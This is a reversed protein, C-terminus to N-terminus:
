GVSEHRHSGGRTSHREDEHEAQEHAGTAALFLLALACRRLRDPETPVLEVAHSADTELELDPGEPDGLVAPGDVGRHGVARADGLRIVRGCTRLPVLNPRNMRRLSLRSSHFSRMAAWRSVGSSRAVRKEGDSGGSRRGPPRHFPVKPPGPLGGAPM